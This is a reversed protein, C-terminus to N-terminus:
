KELTFLVKDRLKLYDDTIKKILVKHNKGFESDGKYLKKDLIEDFEEKIKYKTFSSYLEENIIVNRPGENLFAVSETRTKNGCRMANLMFLLDNRTIAKISYLITLTNFLKLWEECLGYGGGYVRRDVREIFKSDKSKNHNFEYNSEILGLFSPEIMFRISNLDDVKPSVSIERQLRKYFEYNALNTANFSQGSNELVMRSVLQKLRKSVFYCHHDYSKSFYVYQTSNNTQVRSGTVEFSPYSNGGQFRYLVKVDEDSLINM